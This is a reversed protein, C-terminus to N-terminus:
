PVDQVRDRRGARSARGPPPNQGAEARTPAAPRDSPGPLGPTRVVAPGDQADSFGPAPKQTVVSRNTQRDEPDGPRLGRRVVREVRQDAIRRDATDTGRAIQAQLPPVRKEPATQPQIEAHVKQAGFAHLVRHVVIREVCQQMKAAPRLFSRRKGDCQVRIDRLQIVSQLDRIGRAARDARPPAYRHVRQLATGLPLKVLQQLDRLDKVARVHADIVLEAPRKAGPRTSVHVGTVGTSSMVMSFRRKRPFGPPSAGPTCGIQKWYATRQSARSM